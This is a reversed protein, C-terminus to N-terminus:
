EDCPIGGICLLTRLPPSRSGLDSSCAKGSGGEVRGRDERGGMDERKQGHHGRENAMQAEHSLRLACFAGPPLRHAHTKRQMHTTCIATDNQRGLARHLANRQHLARSRSANRPIQEPAEMSERCRLDRPLRSFCGRGLRAPRLPEPELIQLGLGQRWAAGRGQLFIQAVLSGFDM